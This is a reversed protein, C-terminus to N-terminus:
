WKRRVVPLRKIDAATAERETVWGIGVWRKVMPVMDVVLSIRKEKGAVMKVNSLEEPNIYKIPM